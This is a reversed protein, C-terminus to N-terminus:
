LDIYGTRLCVDCPVSSNGMKKWKKGYCLGCKVIERYNVIKVGQEIGFAFKRGIVPRTYEKVKGITLMSEHDTYRDINLECDTFDKVFQGGRAIESGEGKQLVIILIGRGVEAKCDEIVKSIDYLQNAALNIWDIINIKDKVIHEAYDDKVPLLTFRDAGTGNTWTVWNMNDLRNLFRQTPEFEETEAVKATYENGMLVPEYDINEGCFNLAITTKGYNSVGGVIVADGERIVIDEAPSMEEENDRDKPFFLRFPPKREREKSFVAVPKVQIVIKYVGDRKGSPKVIKEKTLNFMQVRLGDWGSSNPDIRLERRLYDLDVEKGQRERLFDRLKDSLRQSMLAKLEM